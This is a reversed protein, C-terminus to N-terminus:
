GVTDDEPKALASATGVGSQEYFCGELPCNRGQPCRHERACEQQTEDLLVMEGVVECRGIPSDFTCM